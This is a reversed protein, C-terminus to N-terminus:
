MRQHRGRVPAASRKGKGSELSAAIAILVDRAADLKTRPLGSLAQQMGSEVAGPSAIIRRGGATLKLRSRRGDVPDTTRSVFGQQELRQLIGTITSKHLHLARAVDQPSGGTMRDITRIALRQPGTVGLHRAMHKSARQLQHDIAWLLRLFELAEDITVRRPASSSRQEM